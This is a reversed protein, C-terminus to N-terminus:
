ADGSLVVSGQEARDAGGDKLKRGIAVLTLLRPDTWNPDTDRLVHM